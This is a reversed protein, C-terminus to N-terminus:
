DHLGHTHPVLQGPLPSQLFMSTPFEPQSLNQLCRLLYLWSAWCAAPGRTVGVQGIDEGVGAGCCLGEGGSLLGM